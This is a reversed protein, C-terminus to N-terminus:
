PVPSNHEVAVPLAAAQRVLEFHRQEIKTTMMQGDVKQYAVPAVVDVAVDGRVGARPL